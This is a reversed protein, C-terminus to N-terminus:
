KLLFVYSKTRGSGAVIIRDKYIDVVGYANENETEVMGETTLFPIGKTSGFDGAHHHGSIVARVCPYATLVKFIEQDNLATLGEADPAFIPHHSFVLVNEKKKTASKLEDELWVLQKRSIGGNYSAGNKRGSEQIQQIMAEYEAQKPTNQINAYTAVENTNLMIFRWKKKTFSYYESPMSLADYLAANVTMGGYDHNGTTNYVNSNLKAFREFVAELNGYTDRDVLDGLNVTFDVERRNLDDVCAELKPLSNRYYRNINEDCDCYQIDAILGFRIIPKDTQDCSALLGCLMLAFVITQKKM